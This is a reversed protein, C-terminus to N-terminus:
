GLPCVMNAFPNLRKETQQRLVRVRPLRGVKRAHPAESEARIGIQNKVADGIALNDNLTHAVCRAPRVRRWARWLTGSEASCRLPTTGRVPRAM